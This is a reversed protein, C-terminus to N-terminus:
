AAPREIDDLGRSWAERNIATVDFPHAEVNAYAEVVALPQDKMLDAMGRIVHAPGDYM